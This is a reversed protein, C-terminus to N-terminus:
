KTEGKAKAIAASAKVVWCDHRHPRYSVEGCCSREGVEDDEGNYTTGGGTDIALELAELLEPAAAFVHPGHNGFYGSFCVYADGFDDIEYEQPQIIFQRESISDDESHVAKRVILPKNM